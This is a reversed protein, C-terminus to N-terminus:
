RTIITAVQVSHPRGAADNWSVISEIKMSATVAVNQVAGGVTANITPNREVTWIQNYTKENITVPLAYTWIQDTNSVDGCPPPAGNTCTTGTGDNNPTIDPNGALDYNKVPDPATDDSFSQDALSPKFLADFPVNKMEEIRDQALNTAISVQQSFTNGRVSSAIMGLVGLLGISLIVLAILVELLTFGKKGKLKAM